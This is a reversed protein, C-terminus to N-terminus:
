PRTPAPPLGSDVGILAIGHKNAYALVTQRDLLLTRFAQFAIVTGGARKLTKLTKLGIVPIDFRMDHGERAGKFVVGGAHRGLKGGRRIAANTGEFAEVALVMGDKVMVTQGVDHRGVDTAVIRARRIDSEEGETLPRETLLGVGPLHDEMFCSAPLVRVGRRTYEAILRGFISHASKVSLEALLKRAFDDFRTRFLSMPNVQGAMIVGDYRQAAIWEIGAKVEGVGFAKVSDALAKTARDTSGKIELVDVREVGARRAGVILHRPYDGGGAIVLLKGIM